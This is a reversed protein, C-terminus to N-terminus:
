APPLNFQANNFIYTLIQPLPKSGNAGYTTWYPLGGDPHHGLNTETGAVSSIALHWGPYENQYRVIQNQSYATEPDYEDFLQEIADTDPPPDPNVAEELQELITTRQWWTPSEQPDHGTNAAQLSVYLVGAVVVYDGEGYAHTPDYIPEGILYLARDACAGCGM